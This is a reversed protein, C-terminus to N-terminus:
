QYRINCDTKEITLLFLDADFYVNKIEAEKKFGLKKCFKLSKENKSSIPAIIKKVKLQNFPYYFIFKFFEYNVYGNIVIHCTISNGTFNEYAVCATLENNKVFGIYKSDDNLKCQKLQTALWKDMDYGETVIM